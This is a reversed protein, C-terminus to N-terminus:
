VQIFQVIVLFLFFFTLIRKEEVDILYRPNQILIHLRILWDSRETRVTSEVIVYHRLYTM